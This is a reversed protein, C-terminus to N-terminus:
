SRPAPGLWRLRRWHWVYASTCATLLAVGFVGLGVAVSWRLGDVWAEGAFDDGGVTGAGGVVGLLVLSGLVVLGGLLVLGPGTLEDYGLRSRCGACRVHRPGLALYVRLFGVRGGCAPCTKPLPAQVRQTATAGGSSSLRDERPPAYPNPSGPQMAPM